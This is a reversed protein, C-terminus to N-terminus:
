RAKLYLTNPCDDPPDIGTRGAQQEHRQNKIDDADRYDRDDEPKQCAHQM